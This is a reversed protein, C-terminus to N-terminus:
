HESLLCVRLLDHGLSKGIADINATRQKSTATTDHIHSCEYLIRTTQTRSSYGERRGTGRALQDLLRSEQPAKATAWGGLLISGSAYTGSEALCIEMVSCCFCALVWRFM